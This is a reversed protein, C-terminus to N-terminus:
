IKKRKVDFMKIFDPDTIEDIVKERRFDEVIPIMESYAAMLYNIRDKKNNTNLSKEFNLQILKFSYDIDLDDICNWEVAHLYRQTTKDMSDLFMSIIQYFKENHEAIDYFRTIYKIKAYNQSLIEWEQDSEEEYISTNEMSEIIRDLNGDFSVRNGSFALNELANLLSDM